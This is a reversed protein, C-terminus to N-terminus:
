RPSKVVANVLAPLALRGVWTEAGKLAGTSEGAHLAPACLVLATKLAAIVGSLTPATVPEM